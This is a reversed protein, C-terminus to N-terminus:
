PIAIILIQTFIWWQKESVIEAKNGSYKHFHTAGFLERVVESHGLFLDLLKVTRSTQLGPIFRCDVHEEALM